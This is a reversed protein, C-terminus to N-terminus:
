HLSRQSLVRASPRCQPAPFQPVQIPGSSGTVQELGFDEDENPGDFIVDGKGVGFFPAIQPVGINHMQFDSFM